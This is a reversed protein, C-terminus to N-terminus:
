HADILGDIVSTWFSLLKKEKLSIRERHTHTHTHSASVVFLLERAPERAKWDFLLSLFREQDVHRSSWRGHASAYPGGKEAAAACNERTTDAVPLATVVVLAKMPTEKGLVEEELYAWFGEPLFTQAAASVAPLPTGDLALAGFKTDVLLVGVLPSVRLLTSELPATVTDVEGSSGGAGGSASNGDDDDGDGGGAASASKAAANTERAQAELLDSERARLVAEAAEVAAPSMRSNKLEAVAAAARAVANARSERLMRAELVVGAAAATAADRELLAPVSSDWLQRQYEWYVSRALRLRKTITSSEDNSQM